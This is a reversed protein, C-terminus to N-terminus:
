RRGSDSIQDLLDDIARLADANIARARHIIAPDLPGLPIRVDGQRSRLMPEEMPEEARGPWGASV